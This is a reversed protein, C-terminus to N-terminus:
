SLGPNTKPKRTQFKKEGGPGSKDSLDVQQDLGIEPDEGPGSVLENVVWDEPSGALTLIDRGTIFQEPWTKPEKNVILKEEKAMHSREFVCKHRLVILNVFQEARAFRVSDNAERSFSSMKFSDTFFLPPGVPSEVIEGYLYFLGTKRGPELRPAALILCGFLSVFAVDFRKLNIAAFLRSRYDVV